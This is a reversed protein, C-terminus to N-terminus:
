VEMAIKTVDLIIKSEMMAPKKCYLFEMEVNVSVNSMKCIIAMKVYNVFERIANGVINTVSFCATSVDM